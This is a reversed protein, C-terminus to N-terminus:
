AAVRRYKGSRARVREFQPSRGLTTLLTNTPVKGWVAYGSGRLLREIETFDLVQGPDMLDAAKESIDAGHLVEMEGSAGLAGRELEQAHDDLNAAIERLREARGRLEAATNLIDRADSV